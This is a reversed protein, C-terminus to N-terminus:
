RESHGLYFIIFLLFFFFFNLTLLRVLTEDRVKGHVFLSLFLLFYLTLFKVLTEDRVKGHVFLSLLLM